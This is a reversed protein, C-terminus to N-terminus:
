KCGLIRILMIGTYTYAEIPYDKMDISNSNVLIHGDVVKSVIVTHSLGNNGVLILDGPQAYYLNANVDAVLGKGENYRAYNEFYGVNVWSRTRGEQTEEENIDPEYEPDEVYCKWQEEGSYDMEIGGELMCQSAYNQCNGGEDSFNYWKPNREHYWQDAYAVAKNRDYEKTYTKSPIYPKEEAKVRLVEENYADLDKLQKSYYAYIQDADEVSDSDDYFTMYYGQIKELDRIKCGEDTKSIVFYNEIDFSQSEIGGLFAFSMYDDELVDVHYLGNETYYDTVRLDYHAKNMTFDFGRNKRSGIQLSVARDSVAAMVENDFLADTDQKQLTYLSRYYADMYSVIVNMVEEPVGFDDKISGKFSSPIKRDDPVNDPVVIVEEEKKERDLTLAGLLTLGLMTSLLIIMVFRSKLKM